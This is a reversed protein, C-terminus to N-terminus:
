RTLWGKTQASGLSRLPVVIGYRLFPGGARLDRQRAASKRIRRARESASEGQHRVHLPPSSSPGPLMTPTGRLPAHESQLFLRTLHSSPRGPHPFQRFYPASQGPYSRTSLNTSPFCWIRWFPFRDSRELVSLLVTEPSELLRITERFDVDKTVGNALANSGM